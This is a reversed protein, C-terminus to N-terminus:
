CTKRKVLAPPCDDSHTFQLTTTATRILSQRFAQEDCPEAKSVVVVANETGASCVFFSRVAQTRKKMADVGKPRNVAAADTRAADRKAHWDFVVFERYVVCYGNAESRENYQFVTIITGQRL